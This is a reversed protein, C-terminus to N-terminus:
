REAGQLDGYGYVTRNGHGHGLGVRDFDGLMNCYGEVTWDGVGDLHGNDLMDCSGIWDPYGLGVGHGDHLVDAHGVGLGDNIFLVLRTHNGRSHDGVGGPLHSWFSFIIM